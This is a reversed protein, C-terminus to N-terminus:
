QTEELQNLLATILADRDPFGGEIRLKEIRQYNETSLVIAFSPQSQQTKKKLIQM